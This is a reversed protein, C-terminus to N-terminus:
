IAIIRLYVYVVFYIFPLFSVRLVKSIVKPFQDYHITSDDEGRVM